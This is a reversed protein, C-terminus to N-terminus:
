LVGGSPDVDEVARPTDRPFEAPSDYDYNAIMQAVEGVERLVETAPRAEVSGDARLLGLVWPGESNSWYARGGDVLRVEISHVETNDVVRAQIDGALLTAAVAAFFDYTYHYPVWGRSGEVEDSM